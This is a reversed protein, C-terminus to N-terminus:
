AHKSQREWQKGRFGSHLTKGVNGGGGEAGQGVGGLAERHPGSHHSMKM